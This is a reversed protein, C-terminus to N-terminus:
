PPPPNRSEQKQLFLREDAVRAARRTIIYYIFLLIFAFDKKYEFCNVRPSIKGVIETQNWNESFFVVHQM